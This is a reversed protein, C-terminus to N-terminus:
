RIVCTISIWYCEFNGSPVLMWKKLIVLSRPPWKLSSRTKVFAVTNTGQQEGDSVVCPAHWTGSTATLSTAPIPPDRWWNSCICDGPELTAHKCPHTISTNKVHRDSYISTTYGSISMLTRSPKCIHFCCRGAHRRAM